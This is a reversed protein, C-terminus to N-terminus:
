WKRGQREIRHVERDAKRRTPTEMGFKLVWDLELDYKRIAARIATVIEVYRFRNRGRSRGHLPSGREVIRLGAHRGDILELFVEADNRQGACRRCREGGPDRGEATARAGGSGGPLVVAAIRVGSHTRSAESRMM